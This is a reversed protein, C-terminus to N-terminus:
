AVSLIISLGFGFCVFPGLPFSDRLKKKKSILLILSVLASVILAFFLSFVAMNAGCLFGLAAYLKIDGAGLGGKTIASMILLFVMVIIGVLLNNLILMWASQGIVFLEAIFFVIRGGLLILVFLNPIVFLEMDTIVVAFLILMGMSLKLYSLLDSANIQAFYGCVAAFLGILILLLIRSTKGQIVSVAKKTEASTKSADPADATMKTKRYYPLYFRMTLYCISVAIICWILGSIFSM